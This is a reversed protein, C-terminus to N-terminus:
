QDAKRTWGVALGAGVVRTISTNSVASYALIGVVQVVCHVWGDAIVYCADWGGIAGLCVAAASSRDQGTLGASRCIAVEALCIVCHTCAALLDGISVVKKV